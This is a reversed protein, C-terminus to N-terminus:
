IQLKVVEVTGEYIMGEIKVLRGNQPEIFFWQGDNRLVANFAHYVGSVFPEGQFLEYPGDLKAYVVAVAPSIPTGRLTRVSWVHALYEFEHAFDDCDWAEDIYPFPERRAKVFSLLDDIQAQTLAYYTGDEPGLLPSPEMAPWLFKQVECIMDDWLLLRPRDQSQEEQRPTLSKIGNLHGTLPLAAALLLALAKM